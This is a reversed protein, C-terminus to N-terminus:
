YSGAARRYMVDVVDMEAQPPDDEREDVRLVERVWSRCWQCKRWMGDTGLGADLKHGRQLCIALEATDVPQPDPTGPVRLNVSYIEDAPPMDAREEKVALHRQWIGCAECQSWRNKEVHVVKHGRRACIVRQEPNIM